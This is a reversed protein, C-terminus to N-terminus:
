TFISNNDKTPYSEEVKKTNMGSLKLYVLSILESFRGKKILTLVRKLTRNKYNSNSNELDILRQNLRMLAISRKDEM